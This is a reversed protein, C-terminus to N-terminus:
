PESGSNATAKRSRYPGQSRDARRRLDAKSPKLFKEPEGDRSYRPRQIPPPRVSTSVGRAGASTQVASGILWMGSAVIFLFLSYTGNWFHVTWGVIFFFALSILYGTKYDSIRPNDTSRRGVLWAASLLTGAMLLGGPLGFMIGNNLWFMDVSPAMWSPREYENYGIGFIPHNMVTQTGYEWILLRYYASWSDFLPAHSIYFRAISQGSYVYVGLCVTIVAAWLITWRARVSQLLWNWGLLMCQGILATLPGSSLALLATGMVIASKLWRQALTKEYGLVMHTTALISGCCVGFLIPHEFPGQVRSMGWRQDMMTVDITPMVTGFLQLLPKQGAIMEIIGFPLLFIVIKFLLSIMDRFDDANRIYIRALLYAGVTEVFLMGGSQIATDVGHVVTLCIMGWVCYFLIAIDPLRLPGAKGSILRFFCPAIMVLLVIRYASLRLSGVNIVWPIILSVLFITAPWPLGVVGESKSDSSYNARRTPNAFQIARRQNSPM